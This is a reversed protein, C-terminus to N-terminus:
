KFSERVQNYTSICANLQLIAKDGDSAIAVIDEIAQRDANGANPNRNGPSAGADQTSQVTCSSPLRLEGSRIRENIDTQKLAIENKAKRLDTAAQNVKRTVEVEKARAEKNLRDIEVQDEIVRRQYGHHDSVYFGGLVALVVGGVKLAFSYSGLFPIFGTIFSLAYAALGVALAACAIYYLIDGFLFELM